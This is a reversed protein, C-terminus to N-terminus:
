LRASMYVRQVTDGPISPSTKSQKLALPCQKAQKNLPLMTVQIPSRHIHGSFSVQRRIHVRRSIEFFSYVQSHPKIETKM